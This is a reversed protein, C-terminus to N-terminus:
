RRSRRLRPIFGPTARMYDLYEEGFIRVLKADELSAVAMFLPLALATSVLCLTSHILLAIGPYVCLAAASYRPHRVYTYIGTTVLTRSHKSLPMDRLSAWFVIAGLALLVSAVLYHLLPSGRLAGVRLSQELARAAWFLLACTIAGLPGVGTVDRIRVPDAGKHMSGRVTRGM